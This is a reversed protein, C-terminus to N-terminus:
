SSSKRDGHQRRFWLCSVNTSRLWLSVSRWSLHDVSEFTLYIYKFAQDSFFFFVRFLSFLSGYKNNKTTLFSQDIFTETSPAVYYMVPVPSLFNLIQIELFLVLIYSTPTVTQPSFCEIPKFFSLFWLDTKLVKQGM